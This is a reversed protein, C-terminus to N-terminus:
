PRTAVAVIETEFRHILAAQTLHSEVYARGNEGMQLQLNKNSMLDIIAAAIGEGSEPEVLIGCKSETLILSLDSGPPAAAVVPRGSAMINCLKSPLVIDTVARRQPIV